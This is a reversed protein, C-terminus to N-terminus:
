VFGFMDFMERFKVVGNFDVLVLALLLSVGVM